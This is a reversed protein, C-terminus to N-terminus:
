AYTYPVSRSTPYNPQHPLLPHLDTFSVREGDVPLQEHPGFRTNGGTNQCYGDLYVFQIMRFGTQAPNQGRAPGHASSLGLFCL